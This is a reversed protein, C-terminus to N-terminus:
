KKSKAKKAKPKATKTGNGNAGLTMAVLNEGVHNIKYEGGGVADLYGQNKANRLIVAANALRARGSLRTSEQLIEPNITERRKSEPAEFQYYYAVATAYQQDSKPLKSAIFQKIDSIPATTVATAALAPVQQSPSASQISDRAQLKLGLIEFVWRLIREQQEPAVDKLKEVIAKAIDFDEITITM